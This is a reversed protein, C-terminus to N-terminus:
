VAGRWFHHAGSSAPRRPKETAQHFASNVNLPTPPHENSASKFEALAAEYNAITQKTIPHHAYDALTLLRAEIAMIAWAIADQSLKARKNM